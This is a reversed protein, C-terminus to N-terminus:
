EFSYVYFTNDDTGFTDQLVAHADLRYEMDEPTSGVGDKLIVYVNENNLIIECANEGMSSLKQCYLPHKVIWGGLMMNNEVALETAFAYDTHSVNAYVDIFYFNDEHNEMYSYLVDDAQLLVKQSVLDRNLSKIEYLAPIVFVAALLLGLIVSIKRKKDDKMGKYIIVACMGVILMYEMIYVSLTVREPYRGRYILFIWLMSKYLVATLMPIFARYNRTCFIAIALVIYLVLMVYNFPADTGQLFLRYVFVTVADKIRAATGIEDLRENAYDSIIRFCEQSDDEDLLIDYDQYIKLRQESIGKSAYYDLAADDCIIGTYDYVQTRADNYIKYETWEEGTTIGNMGWVIAFSVAFGIAYPMYYRLKEFIKTMDDKILLWVFAIGIFPVSMYFVNVRVMYSLIFFIIPVTLQKRDRVTVFLFIGVGALMAAVVTYHLLVIGNIFLMVAFVLMAIVAAAKEIIRDFSSVARFVLMYIGLIYFGTFFVGLWPIAPIIKYLASIVIGLETSLYYTFPYPEFYTGSLISRIQLDDNIVFIIDYVIFLTVFFVATVLLSVAIDKLRSKQNEDRKGCLFM